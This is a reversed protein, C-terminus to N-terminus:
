EEGLIKLKLDSNGLMKQIMATMKYSESEADVDSLGFGQGEFGDMLKDPSSKYDLFKEIAVNRTFVEPTFWKEPPLNAINYFYLYHDRIGAKMLVAEIEKLNRLKDNVYKTMDGYGNKIGIDSRFQDSFDTPTIEKLINGAFGESFLMKLAYYKMSDVLDGIDPLAKGNKIKLPCLLYEGEDSIEILAKPLKKSIEILAKLVLMSNFENGQTKTFGHLEKTKPIGEKILGARELTALVDYYSLTKSLEERRKGVMEWAESSGGASKITPNDWNPCFDGIGIWFNECSWLEELKTNFTKNIEELLLDSNYFLCVNHIKILEEKNFNSEKKIKYSLVRGM